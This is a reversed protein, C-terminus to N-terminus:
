ETICEPEFFWIEGPGRQTGKPLADKVEAYDHGSILGARLYRARDIEQAVVRPDHDGDIFVWDPPSLVLIKSLYELANLSRYHLIILKGQKMFRDLNNLANIKAQKVDQYQKCHAPPNWSDISFVVGPCNACIAFTSRGQWIGIEIVIRSKSAQQRLWDLENDEMWGPIDNHNRETM